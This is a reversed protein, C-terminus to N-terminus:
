RFPDFRIQCPSIYRDDCEGSCGHSAVSFTDEFCPAVIIDTFGDINFYEDFAYFGM